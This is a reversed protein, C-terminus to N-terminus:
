KAEKGEKKGGFFCSCYMNALEWCAIKAMKM